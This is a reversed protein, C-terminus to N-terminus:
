ASAAKASKRRGSGPKPAPRGSKKTTKKDTGRTTEATDDAGAVLEAGVEVYEDDTISSGRGAGEQVLVTHGHATLERAGAPTMAVRYEETKIETPVGVIM